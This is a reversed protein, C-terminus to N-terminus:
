SGSPRSDMAGTNINWAKFSVAEQWSCQVVSPIPGGPDSRTVIGAGAMPAVQVCRSKHDLRHRRPQCSLDVLFKRVPGPNSYYACSHRERYQATEPQLKM